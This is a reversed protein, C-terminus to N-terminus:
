FLLLLNQFFLSWGNSPEVCIYSAMGCCFFKPSRSILGRLELGRHKQLLCHPHHCLFVSGTPLTDPCLMDLLPLLPCSGQLAPQSCSDWARWSLLSPGSAPPQFSLIQPAFESYGKTAGLLVNGSNPISTRQSAEQLSGTGYTCGLPCPQTHEPPSCLGKKKKEEPVPM